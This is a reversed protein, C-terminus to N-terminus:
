YKNTKIYSKIKKLGSLACERIFLSDISYAIMNFDKKIYEIAKLADTSVSHIGSSIKYKKGIASIKKLINLFKKNKFDGPIGMSSSLDYPGIFYGDIHELSFIEDLNDVAKINEIQVIIISNKQNWKIYDKLRQGFDQAKYLGLGRKGLPPYKVANIINIAENKNMVNSVIVGYSGMDMIRKILNHNNEGVRVLPTINNNLISSIIKETQNLELASHELDVCLWDFKATSLLDPILPDSLTIWSGFNIKKQKLKKKLM